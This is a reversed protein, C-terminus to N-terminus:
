SKSYFINKIFIKKQKRPSDGKLFLISTVNSLDVRKNKNVLAIPLKYSVWDKKLKLPSKDGFSIYGDIQTDELFHGTQFGINFEIDENGKIDFHLFGNEFNTLNEGRGGEIELASGWWDGTGTTVEVIGQPTMEIKCTGEWPNIKLSNSPFTMGNNKKPILTEHTVIYKDHTIPQGTITESNTTTINRLSMESKYPPKSVDNILKKYNGEYSIKLPLGSRKFEGLNKEEFIGWLPYKVENNLNILGFHNESGHPNGTDKWQEDFAEFYFLSIGNINSWERMYQYFLKAKLEDAAKSGTSGYESNDITSWGTEGIHITKDPAISRVYKATNNYQNIAYEKARQMSAKIQKIKSLAEEEPKVGWYLPNYYSDHFPYTHLSIYDVAHILKVLDDTHYHINGGGWSEYNDSSTIWLDPPLDGDSKLEQLYDVWKLITKPYVFYQTAWQVMAENGVAIIKVIDPYSNALEVAKKIESKNNKKNEKFHNARDSWARQCEIWAGLKVYMEFNSKENKLERIAKLLNEAQSYQSTNYTRIIKVGIAELILLDEKLDNVTPEDERTKGRYGGYSMATYKPNGLIESATLSHNLTQNASTCISFFILIILIISNSFTCKSIFM